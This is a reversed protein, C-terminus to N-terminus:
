TGFDFIGEIGSARANDQRNVLNFRTMDTVVSYVTGEEIDVHEIISYDLEKKDLLNEWYVLDDLVPSTVLLNFKDVPVQGATTAFPEIVTWKRIRM